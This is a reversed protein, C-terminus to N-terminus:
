RRQINIQKGGRAALLGAHDVAVRGPGLADGAPVLRYRLDAGGVPAQRL